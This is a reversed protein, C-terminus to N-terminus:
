PAAPTKELQQKTWLRSPNLELSRALAKRAEGNRKLQRLTLGLWLHAEASKPDLEIAKQFDGLAREYGGGLAQPLYYNGVGRSIYAPASKPDRELARAIAEQARKGYSLGALVNAPVIQGCLTGLLRHYEAVEPKLAVAREAARIGAEAARKVQGKDRQEQAVEALYSYALALQYFGKADGAPKQELAAVMKELGARDQADRAKELDSAALVASWLLVLMAARIM